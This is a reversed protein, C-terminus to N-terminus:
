LLKTYFQLLMGYIIYKSFKQQWTQVNKNGFVQCIVQSFLMDVFVSLIDRDSLKWCIVKMRHWALTNSDLQFDTQVLALFHTSLIEGKLRLM